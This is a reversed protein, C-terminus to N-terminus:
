ALACPEFHRVHQVTAPSARGEQMDVLRMRSAAKVGGTIRLVIDEVQVVEEIDADVGNNNDKNNSDRHGNDGNM